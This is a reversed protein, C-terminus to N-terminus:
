GNTLFLSNVDLVNNKNYKVNRIVPKKGAKKKVTAASLTSFCPPIYSFDRPLGTKLRHIRAKKDDSESYEAMQAGNKM